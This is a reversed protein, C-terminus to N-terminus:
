QGESMVCVRYPLRNGYALVIKVKRGITQLDNVPREFWKSSRIRAPRRQQQIRADDALGSREARRETAYYGRMSKTQETM